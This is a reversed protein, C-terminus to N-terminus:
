QDTSDDEIIAPIDLVADRNAIVQSSGDVSDLTYSRWKSANKVELTDRQTVNHRSLQPSEDQDIPLSPVFGITPPITNKDTSFHMVLGQDDDDEGDVDDVDRGGQEDGSEQPPTDSRTSASSEVEHLPIMSSNGNIIADEMGDDEEQINSHHHHHKHKSSHSHHHGHHHKHSHGKKKHHHHGHGHHTPHGLPRSHHPALQPKGRNRRVQDEIPVDEDLSNLTYRRNSYTKTYQRNAKPIISSIKRHSFADSSHHNTEEQEQEDEPCNYRESLANIDLVGCYDGTCQSEDQAKLALHMAVSPNNTIHNLMNADSEKAFLSSPNSAYDLAYKFAIKRQHALLQDDLPNDPDRELLPRLVKKNFLEFVDGFFGHGHVGIIEEIGAVMYGLTRDNLAEAMSKVRKESRRVGLFDVLKKITTGQIFTTFMVVTITTTVITRTFMKDPSKILIALSFAVAGRLGGYSMIFQEVKKVKELRGFKNAIFTLMAVGIARFLTIFILTFVIFEYNFHHNYQVLSVGLFMFIISDASSSLLKLFYKVTTHSKRSMNSEVYPKMVIGCFLISIIGSFHFIEATLYSMYAMLFVFVPEIVRVHETFKTIFSTLLGFIIGILTGGLSVVLFSAFALGIQEANVTGAILSEFTRYLVVSAADNLVSEGFVLMYLIEHVHVEEFVALVAVPDVASILSGFLLGQLLSIDFKAVGSIGWLALGPRQYMGM